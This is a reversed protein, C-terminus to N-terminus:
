LTMKEFRYTLDIILFDNVNGGALNGSGNNDMSLVLPKGSYEAFGAINPYPLVWLDTGSADGQAAGEDSEIGIMPPIFTIVGDHPAGFYATVETVPTTTFSNDNVPGQLVWVSSADTHCLVLAAYTTDMGTYGATVMSLYGSCTIPVVRWNAPPTLSCVVPTTPLNQIAAQNLVTRSSMMLSSAPVTVSLRKTGAGWNVAAGANSSSLIQTRALLTGALTYTGLGVEWAGSPVGAGDVAAALYYCQNGDGVASFAQFGTLAGALTYTGTGTTVSTEQVRDLYLPASLSM